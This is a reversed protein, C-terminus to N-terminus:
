YAEAYASEPKYNLDIGGVVPMSDGFRLKLAMWDDLVSELEDRCAELTDGDAWCGQLSPISGFFRGDEMIEYQAEHMAAQIYKTLM